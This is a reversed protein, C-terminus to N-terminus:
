CNNFYYDSLSSYALFRDTMENSLVCEEYAYIFKKIKISRM